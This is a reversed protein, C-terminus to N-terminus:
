RVRFLSYLQNRKRHCTRCNRRNKYVYTNEPTYEHGQPCHTKKVMAHRGKSAADKLNDGASGLFLHEINYCRPNDCTPCVQMGSPIPGYFKEWTERHKYYRSKGEICDNRM